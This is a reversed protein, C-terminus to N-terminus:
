MYFENNRGGISSTPRRTYAVHVDATSDTTARM